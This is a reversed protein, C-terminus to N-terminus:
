EAGSARYFFHKRDLYAVDEVKGDKSYYVTLEFPSYPTEFSKYKLKHGYYAVLDRDDPSKGLIAEVQIKSMGIKVREAAVLLKPKQYTGCGGIAIILFCIVLRRALSSFLRECMENAKECDTM